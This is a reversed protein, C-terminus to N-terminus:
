KLGGIVSTPDIHTGNRRLEYHLHVGSANGTQGIYGIVEGKRVTRTKIRYVGTSESAARITNYSSIIQNAGSFGSLCCYKATYIGDSSQFEIFNGYSTLKKVGNYIRYAQKYTVTGDAIAYVPTAPRLLYAATLTTTVM